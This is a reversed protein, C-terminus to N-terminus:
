SAKFWVVLHELSLAVGGKLEIKVTKIGTYASIDNTDMPTWTGNSFTITDILTADLSFKMYGDNAANNDAQVCFTDLDTVDIDAKYFVQYANTLRIKSFNMIPMIEACARKVGEVGVTTVALGM